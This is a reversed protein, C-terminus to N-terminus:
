MRVITVSDSARTIATYLWKNKDSRFCYSEDFICVEKWQSGQAKHCTLAYGYDFSDAESKEFWKLQDETGLFYHEHSAVDISLISEEPAISMHVKADMVGDVGTVNFIAGNLLGLEHNNRLCVIKDGVVPYKGEFGFLHRFKMNSARRTKNKGVLVQDFSMMKEHDLKTGTPYVHCGDGWDGLRLSNGNRVETAMRIIPSEQAQRHIEELMIDPEVDKTFYGDGGVPPLQAPDGLVLVKTGFSLLDSGMKNDVMSCEDIIVLKSDKVESDHNLVFFPKDSQSEEDAITKKIDLVKPHHNIVHQTCGESKLEFTLKDLEEYLRNILTKSKERSHYIMKHITTAGECGKNRLVHAAKGTFAGFLVRGEVGEALHRALTTKGTGAYGFLHFVQSDGSKLWQNVRLLAEDQKPSWEM